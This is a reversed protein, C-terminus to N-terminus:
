ETYLEDQVWNEPNLIIYNCIEMYEERNRIVRDYFSRQFINEGVEKNVFRKLTSICNSIVSTQRTPSSARPTGDEDIFLILHIHNPMIVFDGVSVGKVNNTSLIYKEVIKGIRTLQIRPVGHADDGVSNVDNKHLIRSLICKRDQTCLTLFYAGGQSYDFYPLRTHKRNPLEREEM